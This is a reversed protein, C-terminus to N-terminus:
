SEHIKFGKQNLTIFYYEIVAIYERKILYLLFISSWLSPILRFIVSTIVMLM